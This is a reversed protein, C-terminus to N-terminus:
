DAQLKIEAALKVWKAHEGELIAKLEAAGGDGPVAGLAIMRKRIEPNRLARLVDASLKDAIAQPVRAPAFLGYWEVSDFGPYGSEAVTPVEPMGEFRQPSTVALARLKGANVHSVVSPIAIILFQVQGGLLDNVAPAGGKYPVHRIDAGSARKLLEMSRHGATLAGPSAYNFKGPSAKALEFAAKVDRANLSPNVVLLGPARAVVAVASFDRMTDYPVNNLVIPNIAHTSPLLGLTYGDPPSQALAQTGIIGYAGARNEVVVPKGWTDSLEKGLLRAVIDATGGASFPVILRVAREPYDARAASAALMAGVCVGLLFFKFKRM